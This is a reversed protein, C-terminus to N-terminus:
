ARNVGYGSLLHRGPVLSDCECDGAQCQSAERNKRMCSMCQAQIEMIEELSLHRFAPNESLLGKVFEETRVRHQSPREGPPDPWITLFDGIERKKGNKNGATLDVRQNIYVLFCHGAPVFPIGYRELITGTGAVVDENLRYLGYWRDVPLELERALVTIAGHKTNCTGCGDRFLSDEGVPTRNPGYPLRHVYEAAERFTSLGLRLFRECFDLEKRLPEDPLVSVPNMADKSLESM